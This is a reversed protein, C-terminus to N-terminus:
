APRQKLWPEGRSLVLNAAEVLKRMVAVVVLKKPKGRAILQDAFAKLAPSCRRAALAALYLMRRPRSRGGQIFRQGKWQGSDRDFPVLGALAAAQGRRMPGLEPMRVVLTAAVVPGVGPLSLLLRFRHLLDPRAKIRAVVEALLKAKTRELGRLATRLTASLDKAAISELLTKLDAAKDTVLEYATLREALDCLEPDRAARVAEVQATAAAILRADLRDNKARRRKLRAFLRVELPQHVVVEFGAQELAQRVAREYGGSAELGVRGVERARLWVILEAIGAPSNEVWIEDELGHVAADLRHKGVDIGAIKTNSQRQEM